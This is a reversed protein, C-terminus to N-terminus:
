ALLETCFASLCTPQDVWAFAGGSLRLFVTRHQEVFATGAIHDLLWTKGCGPPGVVSVSQGRSICRLIRQVEKTRGVFDGKRWVPGDIRFPNAQGQEHM